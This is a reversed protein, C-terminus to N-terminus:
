TSLAKNRLSQWDGSARADEISQRMSEMRKGIELRMSEYRPHSRLSDITPDQDISWLEYPVLSAFGQDIADRLADLAAEPRGQLALIQVDKIGHGKMGSRPMDQIAEHARALWRNAVDGNGRQQELFALLVVAGISVRDITTLADAGLAPSSRLLYEYARDHDGLLVASRVLVPYVMKFPAESEEMVPELINIAQEYEENLFHIYGMGVPYLPHDPPFTNAFETIIDLYGLAQYIPLVSGGSLPDESLEQARQSWAISEDLRGMRELHGTMYEYPMAWDPFITMAKLLLEITQENEGKSALMGPLNVYPIRSLPDIQLAMRLMEIGQDIKGQSELLAGYWVYTDALNPNLELAKRYSEAAIQNGNGLRTRQWRNAEILGMIAHAKALEPDLELARSTAAAALEFAEAPAVADHNIQLLMISEALGAHAEAYQPDIRIAQEFQERAQLTTQFRRQYLNQRGAAYLTYADINTTSVASLRLEDEPDLAARLSVAIESSIDSQIDFVNEMTLNRDYSKAWIHEDTDADILQVTIRVKGGYQQVAGEVITAVDLEEGIQRLNKETGRYNMVSTRSIVRLSEINSLRTLLDDHVGDTFFRNEPDSSRNDFPLVAVSNRNKAATENLDQHRVDFINFSLSIGLAVILLGILIWNINSRQPPRYTTRDIDRELKVGDPTVEYIWAAILALVWGGIVFMVYVQFFWEPAGFTPLLVSGAEILIWAVLAYAAAVKLVNRRSLETVFSPMRSNHSSQERM